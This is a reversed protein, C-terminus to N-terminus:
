PLRITLTYPTPRTNGGSMSCTQREGECPRTCTPPAIIPGLSQLLLVFSSPRESRQSLSLLRIVLYDWRPMNPYRLLPGRWRNVDDYCFCLCTVHRSSCTDALSPILIASQWKTSNGMTSSLDSCVNERHISTYVVVAADAAIVDHHKGM